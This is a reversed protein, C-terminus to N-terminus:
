RIPNWARIPVRNAWKSWVTVVAAIISNRYYAAFNGLEWARPYNSFVWEQPMRLPGNSVIDPMSRFSTFLLFVLPALTVLVFFLATARAYIKFSLSQRM